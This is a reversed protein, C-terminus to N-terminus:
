TSVSMAADKLIGENDSHIVFSKREINWAVRAEHLVAVSMGEKKNTAVPFTCGKQIWGAVGVYRRGNGGAKSPTLWDFTLMPVKSVPKTASGRVYPKAKRKATQCVACDRRAPFHTLCHDEFFPVKPNRVVQKVKVPFCRAQDGAATGVLVVPEGGECVEICRAQVVREQGQFISTRILWADDPSLMPVGRQVEPRVVGESKSLEILLHLQQTSLKAMCPGTEATWWTSWGGEMVAKGWSLLQEGGMVVEQRDDIQASTSANGVGIVGIPRFTRFVDGGEANRVTHDAGSDLM